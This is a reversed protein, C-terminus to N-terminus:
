LVKCFRDSAKRRDRGVETLPSDRVVGSQLCSAVNDGRDTLISKVYQHQEDAPEHYICHVSYHLSLLM